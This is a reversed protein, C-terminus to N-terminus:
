GKQIEIAEDYGIITDLDLSLGNSLARCAPKRTKAAVGFCL